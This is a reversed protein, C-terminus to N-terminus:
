MCLQPFIQEDRFHLQPRESPRMRLRRQGFRPPPIKPLALSPRPEQRAKTESAIESGGHSALVSEWREGEGFIIQAVAGQSRVVPARWENRKARMEVRSRFLNRAGNGPPRAYFPKSHDLSEPM